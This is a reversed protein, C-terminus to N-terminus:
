LLMALSINCCQLFVIHKTEFYVYVGTNIMHRVSPVADSKLGKSEERRVSPVADSKLGKSEERRVSPVADSKLGKSKHLYDIFQNSEFHLECQFYQNSLLRADLDNEPFGVNIM